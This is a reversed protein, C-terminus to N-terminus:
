PAERGPVSGELALRRDRPSLAQAHRPGLAAHNRHLRYLGSLMRLGDRVLRVKSGPVDSWSVTVEAVQYGLRWALLLVELDILYGAERSLGFLEKATERRFMKFGCQTDRVPLAFFHGALRAFLNGTLHRRWTRTVLSGPDRLLRSGVAVDAEGALARRLKAEESIPTAGDADAFLVYEGRAAAVGRRLAAGKGMNTPQRLIALHPWSPLQRRLVEALGDTGGDDVVIVEYGSAFVRDLYARVRDLYPPLRESENYAPIVLSFLLGSM